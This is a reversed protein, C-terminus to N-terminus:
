VSFRLVVLTPYSRRAILLVDGYVELKILVRSLGTVAERLHVGQNVIVRTVMVGEPVALSLEVRSPRVLLSMRLSFINSYCLVHCVVWIIVCCFCVDIVIHFLYIVFQKLFFVDSSVRVPIGCVFWTVLRAISVVSLGWWTLFYCVRFPGFFFPVGLVLFLLEVLQLIWCVTILFTLLVIFYVCVVMLTGLYGVIGTLLLM